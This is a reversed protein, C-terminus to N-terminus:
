QDEDEEEDRRRRTLTPKKLPPKQENKKKKKPPHRRMMEQVAPHEESNNGALEKLVKDNYPAYFSQRLAPTSLDRGVELLRVYEAIQKPTPPTEDAASLMALVYEAALVNQFERKESSKVETVIPKRIEQWTLNHGEVVPRFLNMTKEVISHKDLYRKRRNEQFMEESELVMNAVVREGIKEFYKNTIEEEKAKQEEEPTKQKAQQDQAPQKATEKEKAPQKATEKQKAPQKATEKEKAPETKQKKEETAKKTEETTKKTEETGKKKQEKKQEVVPVEDYGESDGGTAKKNKQYEEIQELLTKDRIDRNFKEKYYQIMEEPYEPALDPRRRIFCHQRKRKIHYHQQYYIFEEVKDALELDRQRERAAQVFQKMYLESPWPEEEMNRKLWYYYDDDIHKQLHDYVYSKSTDIAQNVAEEPQRKINTWVDTIKNFVNKSIFGETPLYPKAYIDWKRSLRGTFDEKIGRGWELIGSTFTETKSSPIEM